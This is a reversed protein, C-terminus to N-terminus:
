LLHKILTSSLVEMNIPKSVHANMGANYSDEIMEDLAHATVAIIQKSSKGNAQEWKRIARTADYGDMVPMECDMLVGNIEDYYNIVHELAEEGNEAIFCNLGLKSLMGKIVMQNVKNDEVILVNLGSLKEKADIEKELRYKKSQSNKYEDIEEPSINESPIEFWFNAGKDKESKVGIKGGLLEIIKKSISLGLGTGGYKRTTSGDAQSFSKFLRDQQEITLGIGSDIVETKTAIGEADEKSSSNANSVVLRVNGNKTFKLANGLLNLLVQQIRNSDSKIYQPVSEDIECFLQISKDEALHQLNKIVDQHLQHFDFVRYELQMKGAEIKSFDLIDNILNLLSRGSSSIINLFGQQKDSLSTDKLMDSMGLIGNLPTRIEHSMTALFSSKTKSQAKALLVEERATIIENQAKLEAEKAQIDAEFQKEKVRRAYKELRLTEEDAAVRQKKEININDALALSIFLISLANGIQLGNETFINRPIIGLKNATLIFAALVFVVWSVLFFRVAQNGRRLATICAIVSVLAFPFGTVTNILVSHKYPIFPSLIAMSMAFIVIFMMVRYQWISIKKLNVFQSIFIGGAVYLLANSTPMLWDNLGEYNPWVYQFGFGHLCAHFLVNALIFTAFLFYSRDRVSAFLILNYLVMILTLGFYIGWLLLTSQNEIGVSKESQIYLPVQLTGLNVVRIFIEYESNAKLNFPTILNRDLFGRQSFPYRDGKKAKSQLKGNSYIYIRIDDLNSNAINIVYNKNTNKNNKFQLKFWIASQIYGFSPISRQSQQWDTILLHRIEGIEITQEKDEYYTLYKGVAKGSGFSDVNLIKQIEPDSGQIAQKTSNLNDKASVTFASVCLSLVCIKLLATLRYFINYKKALSM